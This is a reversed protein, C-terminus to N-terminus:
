PTMVADRTIVQDQCSDGDGIPNASTNVDQYGNKVFILYGKGLGVVPGWQWRYQGNSDTQSIRMRTGYHDVMDVDVGALLNGNQDEVTGQIVFVKVCKNDEPCGVLLVGSLFIIGSIILRNIHQMVLNPM